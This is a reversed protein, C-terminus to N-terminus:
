QLTNGHGKYYQGSGPPLWTGSPDRIIDLGPEAEGYIWKKHKKMPNMVYFPYTLSEEAPYGDYSLCFVYYNEAWWAIWVLQVLQILKM